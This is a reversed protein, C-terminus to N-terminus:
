ESKDYLSKREVIATTLFIEEYIFDRVPYYILLLM